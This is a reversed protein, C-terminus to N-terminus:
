MGDFKDGWLIFSVFDVSSKFCIVAFFLVDLVELVNVRLLKGVYDNTLVHNPGFAIRVSAIGNGIYHKTEEPKQNKLTGNDDTHIDVESSSDVADSKSKRRNKIKSVAEQIQRYQEELRSRDDIPVDYYNLPNESKKLERELVMKQVELIDEDVEKIPKLQYYDRIRDFGTPLTWIVFMSGALTILSYSFSIMDPVQKIFVQYISRLTYVLGIIMVSLVVWNKSAISISVVQDNESELIFYAFPLVIFLAGCSLFYISEWLQIVLTRNLWVESLGSLYLLTVPVSLTAAISVTLAVACSLLPIWNWGVTPRAFCRVLLLAFVFLSGYYVIFVTLNSIDEDRIVQHDDGVM